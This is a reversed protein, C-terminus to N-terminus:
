WDAYKDTQSTVAITIHVASTFLPRTRGAQPAPDFALRFFFSLSDIISAPKGCPDSIPTLGNPHYLLRIMADDLLSHSCRRNHLSPLQMPM